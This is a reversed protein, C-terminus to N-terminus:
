ENGTFASLEDYVRVNEPTVVSVTRAASIQPSSADGILYHVLNQLSDTNLKAGGLAARVTDISTKDETWILLPVRYEERYGPLFGSGFRDESLYQGHDSVYMFLLAAGSFNRYLKSLVRDTYLLSNDYQAVTGSADSFGFGPPYRQDYRTHSGILHIFTAQRHQGYAGRAALEQVIREDYRTDTWSWENLFIQEDAERALSTTFSDYVGVRGQNSIWLTHFGCARLEGVLSHERYFIDFNGPSAASLMMALSYRTQNAPALADFAYPRTRDAFPTTQKAYGFLSMHDSVASEGLVIVVKDYKDPCRGPALPHQALFDRRAKLLDYRGKAQVIEAALQYPPFQVLKLDLRFAALVILWALLALAGVKQLAQLRRGKNRFLIVLLAIGYLVFFTVFAIDVGDLHAQLYELAEGPASEFAAEIRSNLQKGGWHRSLHLYLLNIPVLLFCILFFAYRQVFALLILGMAVFLYFKHIAFGAPGHVVILPALVTLGLLTLLLVLGRNQKIERRTLGAQTRAADSLTRYSRPLAM